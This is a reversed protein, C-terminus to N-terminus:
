DTGVPHWTNFNPKDKKLSMTQQCPQMDTSGFLIILNSMTKFFVSLFM